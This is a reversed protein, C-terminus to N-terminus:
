QASTPEPSKPRAFAGAALALVIPFCELVYRPEPNELTSLFISRMLLYAILPAALLGLKWNLWGRLAALLYFLNLGAWLLAFLSEEPHDSFKWWQTDVPLMETRPRLWMDSIRLFPMGVFYRFPNHVVRERALLEFQWDLQPDIYLQQNYRDILELTHDYERRSDFAREPLMHFDVPDGPVQWFVDEVSAYDAMWTKVWHNFGYPVFEGPDNAYRSALPQFVHFVRWNRVTWPVLPALSIALFVVGAAVTQKRSSRLFLLLLLAVGFAPLLLGDDPRMLISLATWLGALIWMLIAPQFNRLSKIGRVGYYFGHATCFIAITEALPAAVYNATFPCLAALLYAAKAARENMLELALAAIVLCTNTDILAQVIMVATYHEHGFVAFMAALFAPYGPLRILTPRVLGDDTLGYIGHTLWNKAIDGYIFTDGSIHPLFFVFFLRLALAAATVLCFFLWNRRLLELLPRM